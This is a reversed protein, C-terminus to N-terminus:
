DIIVCDPRKHKNLLWEYVNQMQEAQADWSFDKIMWSRGNCGMEDLQHTPLKLAQSLASTLAQENAEICWGCNWKNLHKWPTDVTTIVPTAHVLAEAVAIGFNESYSPLVFLRSTALLETKDKGFVGGVFKVRPLKLELALKQMEVAYPSDLVGVIVLDWEPWLAEIAQWSHLLLHLGKKPHIRSLFIITNKKSFDRITIDPVDVGNPILAVPQKFGLRRIDLVEQESTAHFCDAKNVAPKQLTHWFPAKISHRHNMSWESFMGRPSWILKNGSNRDLLPLLNIPRWIGHQHFIQNSLNILQIYYKIAGVPILTYRTLMSDFLNLNVNYSWNTPPKGLSFISVKNNKIKSLSNCISGVSYTPGASLNSVSQLIHTIEMKVVM